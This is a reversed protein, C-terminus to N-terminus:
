VLVRPAEEAPLQRLAEVLNHTAFVRSDRIRQKADASWRQSIPEGILNVVQDAGRLAELPPQTSTPEPWAVVEAGSRLLDRAGDPSRSLVVVTDEGKLLSLVVQRGIMGTGGTVVTRSM